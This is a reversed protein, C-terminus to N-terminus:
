LSSLSETSTSASSTREGATKYLGHTQIYEIVPDPVVYKISLGRRILRSRHGGISSWHLCRDAALVNRPARRGDMCCPRCAIRHTLSPRVVMAGARGVSRVATSSIENVVWERAIIINNEYPGLIDSEHIFRAPDSGPRTVVVIGFTGAIEAIHDPDWLGPVAFSQLLDGGCLLMLRVPDEARALAVGLRLTLSQPYAALRYLRLRLLAHHVHAGGRRGGMLRHKPPAGVVARVPAMAACTDRQVCVCASAVAALNGSSRTTCALVGVACTGSVCRGVSRATRQDFAAPAADCRGNTAM